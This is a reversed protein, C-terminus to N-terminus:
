AMPSSALLKRWDFVATLGTMKKTALNDYTAAANIPSVLPAIVSADFKLQPLMKLALQLDHGSSARPVCIQIERDFAVPYDFSIQATYSGQLVLRSGLGGNGWPNRRLHSMLLSINEVNSTCDVAISPANASSHLAESLKGREVKRANVGADHLNKVRDRNHDLALVQCGIQQFALASFYGIIGSGLILVSEGPKAQAHRIGRIAIALLGALAGNVFDVEAPLPCVNGELCIAHSVHGGWGLALEGADSTGSAFVRTGVALKCATGAQVVTGALNYGPIFPFDPANAEHGDLCRLETGPSIASTEVRVAVEEPKADRRPFPMNTVLNPRSFVIAHESTNNLPIDKPNEEM